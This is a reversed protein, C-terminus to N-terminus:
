LSCIQKLINGIENDTIADLDKDALIDLYKGSSLLDKLSERTKNSKIEVKNYEIYKAKGEEIKYNPIYINLKDIDFDSGAKTTIQAPVIVVNGYSAPLFGKIKIREISNPSQTPIRFGILNLLRSDIDKIDLGEFMNPLYVELYPNGETYFELPELNHSEDLKIINNDGQSFELKTLGINAAQAMPSGFKKPQIASNNIISNLVSEFTSAGLVTDLGKGSNLLGLVEEKATHSMDKQELSPKLVKALEKTSTTGNKISFRDKVQKAAIKTRESIFNNINDIIERANYTIDKNIRDTLTGTELINAYIQKSIQTGTTQEEKQKNPTEQQTNYYKWYSTQKFPEVVTNVKGDKNFLKYGKKGGIKNASKFMVVPINNNEMLDKIGKITPSLKALSNSITLVAMKYMTPVVLTEGSNEDINSTYDGFYQTKEMTLKYLEEQSAEGKLDKKYIEEFEKPWNGEALRRFRTTEIHEFGMADSINTEKYAKHIKSLETDNHIWDELVLADFVLDGNADVKNFKLKGGLNYAKDVKSALVTSYVGDVKAAMAAPVRKALDAKYVGIDGILYKSQLQNSKYFFLNLRSALESVKTIDYISLLEKDIYNFTDNSFIDNDYLKYRLTNDIEAKYIKINNEFVEKVLPYLNEFDIGSEIIYDEITPIFQKTIYFNEVTPKPTDKSFASLKRYSDLEQKFISKFIDIFQEEIDEETLGKNPFTVLNKFGYYSSKDGTNIFPAINNLANNIHFIFSPKESMKSSKQEDNKTTIGLNYVISAKSIARDDSDLSGKVKNKAEILKKYIFNRNVIAYIPKNDASLAQVPVIDQKSNAIIDAIKKIRSHNYPNNVIIELDKRDSISNTTLAGFEKRFESKISSDNLIVETAKKDIDFGLEKADKIMQETSTKGKRIYKSFISSLEEISKSRYAATFNNKFNYLEKQVKVDRNKNILAVSNEDKVELLKFDLIQKKLSVIFSNIANDRTISQSDLSDIIRSALIKYEPNESDLLIKVVDSENTAEQLLYVLDIKAKNIDLHQTLGLFQNNSPITSLIKNVISSAKSIHNITTQDKNYGAEGRGGANDEENLDEEELNTDTGLQSMYTNFSELALTRNDLHKLKANLLPNEIRINGLAKNFIITDSSQEELLNDLNNKAYEKKISDAYNVDSFFDFYNFDKVTELEKFYQVTLNKNIALLEEQTLSEKITQGELVDKMNVKVGNRITTVTDNYIDNFLAEIAKSGKYELTDEAYNKYQNYSFLQGLNNLVTNIFKIVQELVSGKIKKNEVDKFISFYRYEEALRESVDSDSIDEKTVTRWANYIKKRMQTSFLAKEVLHFKEHYETGLPADESVTIAYTVDNLDSVTTRLKGWGIGDILGSVKQIPIGFFNPIDQVVMNDLRIVPQAKLNYNFKMFDEEFSSTSSDEINVEPSSNLIDLASSESTSSITSKTEEKIILSSNLAIQFVRNVGEISKLSKVVGETKLNGNEGLSEKGYLVDSYNPNEMLSVIIDAPRSEKPLNYKDRDISIKGEDEFKNIAFLAEDYSLSNDLLFNEDVTLGKRWDSKETSPIDSTTTAKVTNKDLLKLEPSPTIYQSVFQLKYKPQANVEFQNELKYSLAEFPKGQIASDETLSKSFHYYKDSVFNYFDQNYIDSQIDVEKLDYIFKGKEDVGVYNGYEIINENSDKKFRIVYAKAKIDDISEETSKLDTKYNTSGWHLYNTINYFFDRFSKPSSTSKSYKYSQIAQIVKEVGQSKLKKPTLVWVKANSSKNEYIVVSGKRINAKTGGFDQNEKTVVTIKLDGAKIRDLYNEGLVIKIPRFTSSNIKIGTSQEIIPSIVRKGSELSKLIEERKKQISELGSILNAELKAIQEKIATQEEEPLNQLDKNLQTIDESERYKYVIVEGEKTLKSPRRDGSGAELTTIAELTGESSITGDKKFKIPNGQKDVIRALIAKQTIDKDFSKDRIYQGVDDILYEISYETADNDSLFKQFIWQSQENYTGEIPFDTSLNSPSTTTLGQEVTKKPSIVVMSGDLIFPEDVGKITVNKGEVFTSDDKTFHYLTQNIFKLVKNYFQENTIDEPSMFKERNRDRLALVVELGEKDLKEVVKELEQIKELYPTDELGIEELKDLDLKLTSIETENVIEVSQGDGEALFDIIHKIDNPTLVQQTYRLEIEFDPMAKVVEYFYPINYLKNKDIFTDLNDGLYKVLERYLNANETFTDDAEKLKQYMNYIDQRNRNLAELIKSKEEKIYYKTDLLLEQNRKEIVQDVRDLFEKFRDKNKQIQELAANLQLLKGKIKTLTKKYNKVVKGETKNARYSDRINSISEKTKDIEKKLITEFATDGSNKAIVNEFFRKANNLAVIDKYKSSEEQSLIELYQSGSLRYKPNNSKSSAQFPSIPVRGEGLFLPKTERAINNDDFYRVVLDGRFNYALSGKIVLPESNLEKQYQYVIIRDKYKYYFAEEEDMRGINPIGTKSDISEVKNLEGSFATVPAEVEKDGDKFKIWGEAANTNPNIKVFTDTIELFERGKAYYSSLIKNGSENLRFSGDKQKLYKRRGKTKYYLGPELLLNQSPRHTNKNNSGEEISYLEQSPVTFLKSLQKKNRISEVNKNVQEFYAPADKTYKNKIDIIEDKIKNIKTFSDLAEKAKQYNSYDGANRTTREELENLRKNAIKLFQSKYNRNITQLNGDALSISESSEEDTIARELKKIIDNSANISAELEKDNEGKYSEGKSSISKKIQSIQKVINSQEINLNNIDEPSIYREEAEKIVEQLFPEKSLERAKNQAEELVTEYISMKSIDELSVGSKSYKRMNAEYREKIKHASEIAKDVLVTKEQETLMNGKSDKFLENIKQVSDEKIGELHEIYDGFRGARINTLVLDAVTTTKLLDATVFDNNRLAEVSAADANIARSLQQAIVKSNENFLSNKVAEPNNLKNYNDIISQLNKEDVEEQLKTQKRTALSGLGGLVGGALMSEIGESSKLQGIADTLSTLFENRTEDDGAFYNELAKSTVFQGGEQLAESAAEEGGINAFAKYAKEARTLDKLTLKEGNMVLRSIDTAEDISKSFLKGFQVINAGGVLMMNTLFSVNAAANADKKIANLEEETIEPSLGKKIKEQALQASRTQIINNYTERTEVASEGAAGYISSLINNLTVSNNTTSGLNSGAKLTEIATKAKSLKTAGVIGESLAGFVKSFGSGGIYASAMFSAADAMTDGWFNGLYGLKGLGAQQYEDEKYVPLEEQLGKSVEDISQAIPNNLYDGLRNNDEDDVLDKINAAGLAAIAITSVVGDIVRGPTNLLAKGVGNAVKSLTGQKHARFDNLNSLDAESASSDYQSKGYERPIDIGTGTGQAYNPEFSISSSAKRAKIEEPTLVKKAM